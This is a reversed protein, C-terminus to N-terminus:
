VFLLLISLVIISIMSKNEIRAIDFENISGSQGGIEGNVEVNAELEKEKNKIFEDRNELETKDPKNPVEKLKEEEHAEEFKLAEDANNFEAETVIEDVNTHDVTTNDGFNAHVINELEGNLGYKSNVASTYLDFGFGEILLTNNSLDAHILLPDNSQPTLFFKSKYDVDENIHLDDDDYATSSDFDRMVNQLNNIFNDYQELSGIFMDSSEGIKFEQCLRLCDDTAMGDSEICSSIEDLTTNYNFDLKYKNSDEYCNFLFNSNIIMPDIYYVKYILFERFLEILKSCFGVSMVNYYEGERMVGLFKNQEYDCISCYFGKQLEAFVQMASKTYFYIEEFRIKEVFYTFNVKSCFESNKGRVRNALNTLSSQMSSSKEIINMMKELYGKISKSKENWLVRTKEYDDNSCCTQKTDPCYNTEEREPSYAMPLQIGELGYYKLTRLNCEANIQNLTIAICIFFLSIRKM